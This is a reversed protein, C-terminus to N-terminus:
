QKSIDQSRYSNSDPIFIHSQQIRILGRIVIHTNQIIGQLVTISTKTLDYFNLIVHTLKNIYKSTAYENVNAHDTFPRKCMEMPTAASM